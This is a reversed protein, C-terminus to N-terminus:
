SSPQVIVGGFPAPPLKVPHPARYRRYRFLSTVGQDVLQFGQPVPFPLDPRGGIIDEGGCFAVWWCPGVSYDSVPRLEVVDLAEVTDREGPSPTRARPGAIYDELPSLFGARFEIARPVEPSGLGAALPEWDPRGAATRAANWVALALGVVCLTAVAATGLRRVEPAGLLVALAIAFLMWLGILNRSLLYDSGALLAIVAIAVGGLVIGGPVSAMRRTPSEARAIAYVAVAFTAAVALPPLLAWPSNLGVVFHQPVQLLRDGSDVLQIWSALHRQAAALPVLPLAAAGVVGISLAVEARWRHMRWLLWAAEIATLLFGFYHTSFALISAIAWAWLWLSGRGELTQVFFLFALASLLVFLAYPRAEQSYWIMFPSTATLAAALLGARRSGLARGAAYVVPITATGALASLSRLGVEGLGFVVQWGKAVLFYLPPNNDAVRIRQLIDSPKQSIVEITLHEDFWFGQSGLTAFRVIAGGVVILLLAHRSVFDLAGALPARQERAAAGPQAEVVM